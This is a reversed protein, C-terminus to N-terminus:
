RQASSRRHLRDLAEWASSGLWLLGAEQPTLYHGGPLVEVTKSVNEVRPLIVRMNQGTGPEEAVGLWARVRAARQYTDAM